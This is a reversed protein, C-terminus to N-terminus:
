NVQGNAMYEPHRQIIQGGEHVFKKVWEVGHRWWVHRQPVMREDELYVKDVAGLVIDLMDPREEALPHYRYM